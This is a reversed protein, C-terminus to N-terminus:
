CREGLLADTRMALMLGTLADTARAPWPAGSALASLVVILAAHLLAEADPHDLAQGLVPGAVEVECTFLGARDGILRNAM